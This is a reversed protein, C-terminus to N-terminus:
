KGAAKRWTAEADEFKRMMEAAPQQHKDYLLRWAIERSQEAAELRRFLRCTGCKRPIENLHLVEAHRRKIADLEVDNLGLQPSTM